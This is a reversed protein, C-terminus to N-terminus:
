APFPWASAPASPGASPWCRSPPTRCASARSRASRSTTPVSDPRARPGVDARGTRHRRRRGAARGGGARPPVRRARLVAGEPRVGAPRRAAPVRERAGAERPRRRGDGHHAHRPAAVGGPRDARAVAHVHHRRRERPRADRPRGARGLVLGGFGAAFARRTGRWCRRCRGCTPTWRPRRSTTSWCGSSRGSWSCRASRTAARREQASSARGDAGARARPTERGGRGRAGDARRDPLRQRAAGGAPLRDEHEPRGDARQREATGLPRQRLLRVRDQDGPEAARPHVGGERRNRGAARPRLPGPDAARRGARRGPPHVCGRHGGARRPGAHGAASARAGLPGPGSRAASRRERKGHPM